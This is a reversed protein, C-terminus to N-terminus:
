VDEPLPDGGVKQESNLRIRLNEYQTKPISLGTYRFRLVKWVGSTQVDWRTSAIVSDDSKDRIEITLAPDFVASSSRIYLEVDVRDAVDFDAPAPSVGMDFGEDKDISGTSINDTNDKLAITEDLNDFHPLGSPVATPWENPGSDSTPVARITLTAM